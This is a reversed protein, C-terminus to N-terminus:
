KKESENKAAKAAKTEKIITQIFCVILIIGCVVVFADAVNFTPWRNMALFNIKCNKLGFWKVDVFDVVGKARFLRDIINGFGGGVIGMISWRQWQNFDKNRFYVVVVLSLVIIPILSFAVRRVPTPWHAGFSFAVGTNRTHIIELFHPGDHVKFTDDDLPYFDLVYGKRNFKDQLKLLNMKGKITHWDYEKGLNLSTDVYEYESRIQQNYKTDDGFLPLVNCIFIKSGQDLLIVLFALIVPLFYAKLETKEM